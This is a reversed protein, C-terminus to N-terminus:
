EPARGAIRHQLWSRAFRWSREVKRRSLGLSSAIEGITLGIFFRMMVIQAHLANQAELEELAEDLAILEEPTCDSSPAEIGAARDEARTWSGGRKLSAKRRSQEVLINRMARSAAGYFHARCDWGPDTNKTVRLWAEHVLATAQLTQGPELRALESQALRHLEEYVLPLLERASLARAGSLATSIRDVTTTLEPGM